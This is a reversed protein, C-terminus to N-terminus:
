VCVFLKYGPEVKAKNKARYMTPLMTKVTALSDSQVNDKLNAKTKM